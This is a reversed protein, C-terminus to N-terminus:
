RRGLMVRHRPSCAERRIDRFGAERLAAAMDLAFYEALYPETSKLLTALPAPMRRILPSEPDQDVMAVVGGPRLLRAAERLVARTAEAPLEHCLLQLTVLDFSGAALGTDEAAAHHWARITGEPDLVRAVALMQPSLDLGEVAVAAGERAELWRQLARTGLGVSCGVDLADRVRPPLSPEIAAFIASRMREQAAEPGLSEAAWVRMAVSATAQEAECAAEWCLNGEPYAHFAARYYEPVTTSPDTSAALLPEALRHLEERRDQWAIGRREATRIMVQRAQRFLLRRLPAVALLRSIAWGLPTRDDVWNPPATAAPRPPPAAAPSTIM